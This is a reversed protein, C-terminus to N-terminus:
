FNETELAVIALKQYLSLLVPYGANFGKALQINQCLVGLAEEVIKAKEQKIM